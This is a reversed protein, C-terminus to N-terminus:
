NHQITIQGSTSQELETFDVSVGVAYETQGDSISGSALATRTDANFHTKTNFGPLRVHANSVQHVSDGSGVWTITVQVPFSTGSIFEDVITTATLSASSLDNALFFSLSHTSGLATKLLLGRCQDFQSFGVGAVQFDAPGGPPDHVEGTSGFVYTDTIVCGSPDISHFSAVASDGSVQEITVAVKSQGSASLSQLFVVIVFVILKSRPNSLQM